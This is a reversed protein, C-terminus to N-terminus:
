WKLLKILTATDVGYAKLDSDFEAKDTKIYAKRFEGTNFKKEGVRVFLSWSM